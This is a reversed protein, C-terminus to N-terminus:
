WRTSLVGCLGFAFLAIGDYASWAGSAAIHERHMPTMSGHMISSVEKREPAAEETSSSLEETQRGSTSSAATSSMVTSSGKETSTAPESREAEEDSAGGTQKPTQGSGVNYANMLDYADDMTLVTPAMKRTMTTSPAITSTDTTSDSTDATQDDAEVEESTSGVEPNVAQLQAQMAELADLEDEPASRVLLELAMQIVFFSSM